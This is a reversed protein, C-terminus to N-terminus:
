GLRLLTQANHSNIVEFHPPIRQLRLLQRHVNPFIYFREIHNLFALSFRLNRWTFQHTHILGPAPLSHFPHWLFSSKFISCYGNLRDTRGSETWWLRSKLTRWLYRSELCPNVLNWEKYLVCFFPWKLFCLYILFFWQGCFGSIKPCDM